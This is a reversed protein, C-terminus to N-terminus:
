AIAADVASTVTIADRIFISILISLAFTTAIAHTIIGVFSGLQTRLMSYILTAPKLLGKTKKLHPRCSFGTNLSVMGKTTNCSPNSRVSQNLFGIMDSPHIDLGTLPWCSLCIQQYM